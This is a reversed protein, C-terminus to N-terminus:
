SQNWGSAAVPGVGAAIPVSPHLDPMEATIKDLRDLHAALEDFNRAHMIGLVVVAPELKAAISRYQADMHEYYGVAEDAGARRLEQVIGAHRLQKQGATAFAIAEDQMWSFAEREGSDLSNPHAVGEQQGAIAWLTHTTEHRRNLELWEPHSGETDQLVVFPLAGETASLVGTAFNTSTTGFLEQNHNGNTLVAPVGHRAEVTRVGAEQLLAPTVAKTEPAPQNNKILHANAADRYQAVLLSGRKEVPIADFAAAREELISVM